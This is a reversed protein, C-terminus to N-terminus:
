RRVTPRLLPALAPWARLAVVAWLGAAVVGPLLGSPAMTLHFLLINVIVPAIVVLALPVFLGSLFLVGCAVQVAFIAQLYAAPMAHMWNLAPGPMPQMPIFHLFGNLGFTTFAQGLLLRCILAPIKM